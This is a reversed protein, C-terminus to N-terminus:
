LLTPSRVHMHRLCQKCTPVLRFPRGLRMVGSLNRATAGAGGTRGMRAGWFTAKKRHCMWNISLQIRYFRQQVFEWKHKIQAQEKHVDQDEVIGKQHLVYDQIHPYYKQGLVHVLCQHVEPHQGIGSRDGIVSVGLQVHKLPVKLSRTTGSSSSPVGLPKLHLLAPALQLNPCPLWQKTM